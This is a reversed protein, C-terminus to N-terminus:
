KKKRLTSSSKTNINDNDYYIKYGKYCIKFFWYWNFLVLIGMCMAIVQENQVVAELTIYFFNVVRFAFFTFLLLIASVYFMSKTVNERHKCIHLFPTSWESLLALAIFYTKNATKAYWIVIPVILHHLLMTIGFEHQKNNKQEKLMQPLTVTSYHMNYLYICANLLIDPIVYICTLEFIVRNYTSYNYYKREYDGGWEENWLVITSIVSTMVAHACSLYVLFTYKNLLQLFVLIIFAYLVFFVGLLIFQVDM